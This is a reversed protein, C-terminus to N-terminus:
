PSGSGRYITIGGPATEVSPPKYANPDLVVPAAAGAGATGEATSTTGTTTAATAAPTTAAAAPTVPTTTSTTAPPTAAPPTAAGTAPTVGDASPAKYASAALRLPAPSERAPGYEQGLHGLAAPAAPPNVISGLLVIVPALFRM